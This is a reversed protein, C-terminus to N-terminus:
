GPGKRMSTSWIRAGNDGGNDREAAARQEELLAARARCTTKSVVFEPGTSYHSTTDERLHGCGCPCLLDQFELL